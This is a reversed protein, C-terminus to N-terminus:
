LARKRLSSRARMSDPITPGSAAAAAARKKALSATLNDERKYSRGYFCSREASRPCLMNGDKM